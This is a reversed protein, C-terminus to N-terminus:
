ASMSGPQQGKPQAGQATPQFVRSAVVRAIYMAYETEIDIHRIVECDLAAISRKLIPAGTSLRELPFCDFPDGPERPRSPDGFKRTVLRDAPDVLCIAFNGSDRILPEIWHGKRLSVALLPPDGGCPQVSEVLVGARKADCLATMLYVGRPLFGLAPHRLLVNPDTM